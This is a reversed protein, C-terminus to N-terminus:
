IKRPGRAIDEGNTMKNRDPFIQRAETGRDGNRNNNHTGRGNRNNNNNNNNNNAEGGHTASAVALAALQVALATVQANVSKVQVILGEIINNHKLMSKRDVVTANAVKM